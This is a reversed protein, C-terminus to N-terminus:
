HGASCRQPLLWRGKWRWVAFAILGLGILGSLGGEPGFAGGTILTPGAPEVSFLGGSPVGSVPFGFVPGQFFNWAFHLAIPLWLRRTVLYTYAFVLGALILQALALVNVNPNLGHFVGFLVSSVIVAPIVGPWEELTQLLYGRFMLEESGAVALFIIVYALLGLLATDSPEGTLSIRAWGSVWQLVFIVAMVGLGLGAGALLESVWGRRRDLGLGQLSQRDIFRRFLYTIALIALFQLVSLPLLWAPSLIDMQLRAVMDDVPGNATLNLGLWLAGIPVQIALLSLFYTVLYLVARVVPHLRARSGRPPSSPPSNESM